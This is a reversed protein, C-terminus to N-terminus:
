REVVALVARYTSEADGSADVVAAETSAASRALRAELDAIVPAGGEAEVVERIVTQLDDGPRAYFRDAAEGPGAQLLVHLYGHESEVAVARFREREAEDVLMQPLVVDRGGDLHARIMALALPRVIAGVGDFDEDWGGVLRRLLDVDCALVGPHEAVYRAAITSKGVGPAGNLHILTPV